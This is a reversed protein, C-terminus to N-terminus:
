VQEAAKKGAEEEAGIKNKVCGCGSKCRAESRAKFYRKGLYFVAGLFLLLVAASQFDM